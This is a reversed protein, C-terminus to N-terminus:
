TKKPMGSITSKVIDPTKAKNTVLIVSVIPNICSGSHILPLILHISNM